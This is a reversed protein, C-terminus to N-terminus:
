EGEVFSQELNKKKGNKDGNRKVFLNKGLMRYNDM